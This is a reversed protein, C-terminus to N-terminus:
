FPYTVELPNDVGADSRCLEASGQFTMHRLVKGTSSLADV